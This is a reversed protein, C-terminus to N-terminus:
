AADEGEPIGDFLTSTYYNGLIRHITEFSPLNGWTGFYGARM